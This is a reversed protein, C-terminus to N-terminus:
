SNGKRNKGMHYKPCLEWEDKEKHPLIKIQKLSVVPEEIQKPDVLKILNWEELLSCITNRRGIDNDTIDTPLNDLAFMEKFHVIYYKGRKHLIHCSQYLKKDKNSSIGIRTLTEKVKLFDDPAPLKVEVLHELEIGNREM